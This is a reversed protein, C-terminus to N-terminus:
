PSKLSVQSNTGLWWTLDGFLASRSCERRAIEEQHLGQHINAPVAVETMMPNGLKLGNMLKVYQDASKVQLRPNHAKEEPISSVTDGKYDHAPFM